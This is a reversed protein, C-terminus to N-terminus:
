FEINVRCTISRVIYSKNEFELNAGIRLSIKIEFIYAVNTVNKRSGM